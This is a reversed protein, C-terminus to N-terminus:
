TFGLCYFVLPQAKDAPLEESIHETPIHVSGKIHLSNFELLSLPYVVLAQNTDMMEKVQEATVESPSASFVPTVSLLCACLALALLCTAKMLTPVKM